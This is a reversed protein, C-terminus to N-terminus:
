EVSYAQQETRHTGLGDMWQEINLRLAAIANQFFLRKSNGELIQM